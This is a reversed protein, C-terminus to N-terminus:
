HVHVNQRPPPAHRRSASHVAAFNRGFMGSCFKATKGAKTGSSGAAILTADSRLNGSRRTILSASERRGCTLESATPQLRVKRQM